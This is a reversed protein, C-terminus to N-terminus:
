FYFLYFCILSKHMLSGLTLYLLFFENFYFRFGSPKAPSNHEPHLMIRLFNRWYREKKMALSYTSGHSVSDFINKNDYVQKEETPLDFFEAFAEIMETRLREPM